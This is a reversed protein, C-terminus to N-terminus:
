VKHHYGVVEITLIEGEALAALLTITVSQGSVTASVAGIVKQPGKIFRTTFTAQDGDVSTHGTIDWLESGRPGRRGEGGTSQGAYAATPVAM